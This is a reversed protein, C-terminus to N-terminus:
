MPDTDYKQTPESSPESIEAARHSVYIETCVADHEFLNMALPM